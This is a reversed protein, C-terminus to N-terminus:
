RRVGGADTDICPGSGIRQQAAAFHLPAAGHTNKLNCRGGSAIVARLIGLLNAAAYHVIATGDGTENLVMNPDLSGNSLWEILKSYSESNNSNFLETIPAITEPAEQANVSKIGTVFVLMVVAILMVHFGCREIRKHANM